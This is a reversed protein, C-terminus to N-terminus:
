QYPNNRPNTCCEYYKKALQRLQELTQGNCNINEDASGAAGNIICEERTCQPNTERCKKLRFGGEDCEGSYAYARLETCMRIACNNGSSLGKCKDIIEEKLYDWQYDYCYDFQHIMEHKLVMNFMSCDEDHEYASHKYCICVNGYGSGSDTKSHGLMDKNPCTACCQPTSARTSCPPKSTIKKWIDQFWKQQMADRLCCGCKEAPTQPPGTQIPCRPESTRLGSPDTALIPFAKLYTYLNTGDVYGLPDRRTWIGLDSRYVRHRVHYTDGLEADYEYGAYGKRNAISTFTGIPSGYPDYNARESISGSTNIMAVVDHHQNQLYYRREDLTGNADTDRDRLVTEDIYSSGGLGSAGANHYWFQETPESADADDEYMAVIRWREDYAFHFWPATEDYRASLRFGLANYVFEAKVNNSQDKVRVLRYWADYEYKWDRKDDTLNGAADYTPAVNNTQNDWGTIENVKNHTFDWDFETTSGGTVLDTHTWNGVQDLDFVQKRTESTISGGSLTGAQAQTLRELMDNTYKWDFGTQVSDDATLLNSNHDYGLTVKYLDTTSQKWRSEIIRNFRDMADYVDSSNFLLSTVVPSPQNYVTGVLSGVGLYAYRVRNTAGGGSGEAIRTVRSANDDHLGDTSEYLYSLVGSNPLTMQTRRLTRRAGTPEKKEWAYAIAYEDASTGTSIAGSRNQTFSALNGWDDYAYQVQNQVTGSGVTANDYSSVLNVRGHNDYTTSLRLIATDFGGSTTVREHTRRGSDDYDYEMVRGVQDKTWIMEGQADYAFTVADAASASDPYQVKQLLHGTAIKSDGASTGKTTGYTYNTTEDNGSGTMRQTISTQLGNTYVYEVTQNIDTGSPQGSNTNPDYNRIIKTQRNADDYEFKSVRGMPDEITEARSWLDYTTTTRLATDSRAPISLNTRDFTSGGNTGYMVTDTLRHLDDYWLATIQARGKVDSATIKMPDNDANTDLPGTTQGTGADEHKRQILVQMLVEDGDPDYVTQNQELVIDGTVTQADAYSSDDTSALTFRHTVRDLRDHYTKVLQEGQSKMVRGVKDYWTLFALSDDDAGTSQNIKHRTTKWTRGLEDFFSQALSLRDTSRTVPNDSASVNGDKYQGSAVLRGLNDYKNLIFKPETPNTQLLVRGRVDNAFTIERSGTANDRIYATQSTIYSNGGDSGGDYETESVVVMNNTGSTDGGPDGNDNTGIEQSVARGLTDFENRTITGAPTKTRILRGMADHAFTTVDYNTGQSGEGTSGSVPIPPRLHYQWQATARVGTANFITKTLIHCNGLNAVADIVDSETTDVQSNLATTSENDTLEIVCQYVQRGAHNTIVYQVPGYFVDPDSSEDFNSYALTVALRSALMSHNSKKVLGGAATANMVDLRGQRDYTYTTKRHLPSGTSSFGTPITIGSFDGSTTDADIIRKVLQGGSFESYDIRDEANKEFQLTGDELFFQKSTNATGSGNKGTTVTPLTTTVEKPMLVADGTYFTYSLSTLHSNTTGSTIEDEYIRRSAVLPRVVTSDGITKSTTTYTLTLDLYASGSTGTKHKVDTIFGTLDGSSQRVIRTILGASSSLTFSGTSHTYATVNAPTHIDTIGGRSDRVVQTAWTLQGSTQTPDLKTRVQGLPQGVEDFYQTLYTTDPLEVVTRYLWEEDYGSGGPHSGNTAYTFEYTGEGTAIGSCARQGNFTALSIQRSSYELYAEAYDLLASQSATLFDDDFQGDQTWDFNRTGEFGVVLKVQYSTGNTDGSKHYRYYKKRIMSKSSDTLPTTITVLQLNGAEGYTTDGSTYYAYDVRSVEVWGSVDIEVKVQTLRDVSDLTTYSYTYRRDASDFALKIGGNTHFGNTIATSPTTEHGVYATNGDADIIKWIQGKAVGADTDFGFFYVRTGHQDTYIYTEPEGVGGAAVWEFAGAAGNKSKFQNSSTGERKFEIYRDAGYILYLVDNAADSPDDYLLIEPQSTQFWNRGQYGDSDHHSGDVDQRANYTRGIMWSFGPAPMAIDIDFPSYTGTDLRVDGCIRNNRNWNGSGEGELPNGALSVAIGPAERLTGDLNVGRQIARPAVDQVLSAAAPLYTTLSAAYIELIQSSM